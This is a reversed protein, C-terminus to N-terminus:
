RMCALQFRALNQSLEKLLDKIIKTTKATILNLHVNEEAFRSLSVNIGGDNNLKAGEFSPM